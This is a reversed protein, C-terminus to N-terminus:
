TNFIPFFLGAISIMAYSAVNARIICRRIKAFDVGKFMSRVVRYEILISALCFPVALTVFALYLNWAEENPGLWAASLMTGLTAALPKRWDLLGMLHSGITAEFGLFLAWVVPIGILTSLGNATALAYWAESWTVGLEHKAFRAEIGIVPLIALWYIPWAIALM